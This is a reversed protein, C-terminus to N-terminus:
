KGTRSSGPLLPALHRRELSKCSSNDFKKKNGAGGKGGNYLRKSGSKGSNFSDSSYAPSNSRSNKNAGRGGNGGGPNGNNSSCVNSSGSNNGSSSNFYNNASPIMVDDAEAYLNCSTSDSALSPLSSQIERDILPQQQQQQLHHSYHAHQSHYPNHFYNSNPNNIEDEPDGSQYVAESCLGNTVSASKNPSFIEGIHYLNENATIHSNHLYPHHPPGELPGMHSRNPGPSPYCGGGMRPNTMPM